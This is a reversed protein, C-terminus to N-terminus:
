WPSAFAGAPHPGSVIGNGLKPHLTVKVTHFTKPVYVPQIPRKPEAIQLLKWVIQGLTFRQLIELLM